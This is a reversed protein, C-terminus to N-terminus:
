ARAFKLLRRGLRLENLQLQLGCRAAAAITAEPGLRLKAYSGKLTQWGKGDWEHVVDTVWLREAEFHLVCQMIRDRESRVTFVADAGMLERPQERFEFALSGGPALLARATQLLRVVDDHSGLHALTDGLCLVAAFPAYREYANRDLLDAHLAVVALGQCDRRLEELCADSVDVAVVRAGREALARAHYGPGSGLDLVREGSVGDALGLADLLARAEQQCRESGGMMWTYRAGLLNEYHREIAANAESM